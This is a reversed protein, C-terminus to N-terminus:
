ADDAERAAVLRGTMSRVALVYPSDPSAIAVPRRQLVASPVGEDRPLAGAFHVETGFFDRCADRMRHGLSRDAETRAQNIIIWPRFSRAAAELRAGEEPHAARVAAILAKPSRAGRSVERTLAAELTERQEKKTASRRLLRFFAAKMFHYANEVSTPEPIVVLLPRDAAVWFDLTNFAAGAGLDVIVEDASLRGLHRLIKQKQYYAPNAMTLLARAGSVLSLGEVPTPSVVDELEGAEGTLLDSLSRRPPTIGLLTHQNAGGLDADVLVCRRGQAALSIALSSSCISKGVGGKGSGVAWIRPTRQTM